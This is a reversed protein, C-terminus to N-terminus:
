IRHTKTLFGCLAAALSYIRMKGFDVQCPFGSGNCYQTTRFSM